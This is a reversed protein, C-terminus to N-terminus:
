KQHKKNLKRQNPNFGLSKILIMLYKIQLKLKYEMLYIVKHHYPITKHHKVSITQTKNLTHKNNKLKTNLLNVCNSTSVAKNHFQNM